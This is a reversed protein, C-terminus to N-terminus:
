KGKKDGATVSSNDNSNDGNGDGFKETREDSDYNMISIDAGMDEVGDEYNRQLHLNHVTFNTYTLPSPPLLNQTTTPPSTTAPSTNHTVPSLTFPYHDQPHVTFNTCTPPSPPLLNQATTAPSTTVPSTNHTVPFLPFSLNLSTQFIFPPSKKYTDSACMNTLEGKDLRRLEDELAEIM